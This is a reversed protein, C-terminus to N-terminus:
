VTDTSPRLYDTRKTTMLFYKSKETVSGASQCVSDLHGVSFNTPSANRFWRLVIRRTPAMRFFVYYSNVLYIHGFNSKNVFM